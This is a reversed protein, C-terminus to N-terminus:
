PRWSFSSALLERLQAARCLLWLSGSQPTGDFVGVQEGEGGGVGLSRQLAELRLSGRPAGVQADSQLHPWPPYIERASASGCTGHRLSGFGSPRFAFPLFLFFFVLLASCWITLLSPRAKNAWFDVTQHSISMDSPYPDQPRQHQAWISWFDGSIM